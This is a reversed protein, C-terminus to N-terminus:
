IPITVIVITGKGIESEIECRGGLDVARRRMNVLGNGGQAPSFEDGLVHEADFGKGDDDIKLILQDDIIRFDIIARSCESYKAANKVAEKFIALIERPVNAGLTLNEEDDPTHFEFKIQKGSFVDLAFRRMRQVLDHLFDKNPNIAWVVDSMAAVLNKSVTKIRELPIQLDDIALAMSRGRAVESLFAIQTLSSGIDDHLDTAIRTRVRQLEALREERAIEIQRRKTARSRALAFIVAGAFLGILTVFWWRQWVPPLIRISVTAPRESAMGDTSVACRLLM